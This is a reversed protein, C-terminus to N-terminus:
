SPPRRLGASSVMALVVQQAATMRQAAIESAERYLVELDLGQVAQAPNADVEPVQGWADVGGSEAKLYQEAAKEPAEACINSICTSASSIKSM